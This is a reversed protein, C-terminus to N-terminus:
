GRGLKTLEFLGRDVRKWRPKESNIDRVISAALTAEPTKGEPSVWLSKATIKAFIEKVRLPKQSTKMVLIASRMLSPTNGTAMRNKKVAKKAKVTKKAAKKVAKKAKPAVKKSARKVTEQSPTAASEEIKTIEPCMAESRNAQMPCTGITLIGSLMQIICIM